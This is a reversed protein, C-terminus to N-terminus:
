NPFSICWFGARACVDYDTADSALRGAHHFADAFGIPVNQMMIPICDVSIGNCAGAPQMRQWRDTYGNYTVYSDRAGDLTDWAPDIWITTEKLSRTSGNYTCNAPMQQSCIYYPNNVNEPNLLAFTDFNRILIHVHRDGCQPGSPFPGCDRRNYPGVENSSWQEGGANPRQAVRARMEASDLSMFWYPEGGTGAFVEATDAAFSMSSGDPFTVNGGPRAHQTSYFPSQLKGFDLWSGMRLIGGTQYNSAKSTIFVEIAMSHNRALAEMPNAGGHALLRVAEICNSLTDDPLGTKGNIGCNPYPQYGGQIRVYYKSMPHKMHNEHESTAWPVGINAGRGGNWWQGAPGFIADALAPDDGHEHNYYCGRQYDWLGHWKNPDHMSCQPANSYPQIAGDPLRTPTTFPTMTATPPVTQTATPLSTQTTATVATQTIPPLTATLESPKTMTPMM